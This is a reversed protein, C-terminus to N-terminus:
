DIKVFYNMGYATDYSTNCTTDLDNATQAKTELHAYYYNGSACSGKMYAYCGLGGCGTLGSPDMLATKLHGSQLLCDNASLAPGAGDYDSHLWGSGNNACNVSAFNRNDLYYLQTAKVLTAIDQIRRADRAREQVGNYALVSITALITIVAVVILLEVITFGSEKNKTRM